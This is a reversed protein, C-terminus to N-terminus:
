GVTFEWKSLAQVRALQVTFGLGATAPAAITGDPSVTVEPDIIDEKWYRRSASVDGPLSFNALTSLAINHARGIGSELMGGCWVPMGAKQTAAHVELASSFGGVRGLKVNIIRCAGIAIAQEADRLHHISEDLCIATRLERQLRAHFYIDDHWLPQELMMLDFRDFERLHDLDALTYASNADGMLAIDPFRARIRELVAVDWGPKIKVKIRQYGAALERAIADLLDEISDKIGISVGCAIRPRTGGLLQWLPQGVQTAHAAWVANEVAAKAMAHGRVPRMWAAVDRPHRCNNGVVLPLLFDRLVVAATDTSEPSYYPAEGCTVEGWGEVGDVRLQLLLIRRQHMRAFSTEFFSVLPMQIERLTASEIKM